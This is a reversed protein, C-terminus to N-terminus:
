QDCSVVMLNCAQSCLSCTAGYRFTGAPRALCCGGHIWGSNQPRYPPPCNQQRVGLPLTCRREGTHVVLVFWLFCRLQQSPHTPEVTSALLALCAHRRLLGFSSPGEGTDGFRCLPGMLLSFGLGRYLRRIGGEDMLQRFAGVTPVGYRYQYNLVTHFPMLTMVQVAM